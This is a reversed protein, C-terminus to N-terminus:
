GDFVNDGEIYIVSRSLKERIESLSFLFRDATLLRTVTDKIEFRISAFERKM